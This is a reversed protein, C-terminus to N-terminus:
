QTLFQIIRKVQKEATKQNAIFAMAKKAKSDLEEQPKELVETIVSALNKTELGEVTYYYQYYEEPIGTLKYGIMPTGSSLYEMTKSPFSYKTLSVTPKRPNIVATAGQQLRIAEDRSVFGRFIIRSDSQSARQIYDRGEGSGCIILKFSKNNTLRFADVLDVVCAHADLSGTYLLTREKVERKPLFITNPNLAIGEVVISRGIAEPIREEMSKTLLIFKDIDSYCKKVKLYEKRIRVRAFVSRKYIPDMQDEVLDTVIAGVKIRGDMKKCSIISKLTNVQIDYVLVILNNEKQNIRAWNNIFKKLQIRGAIGTVFKLRLTKIMTGVKKGDFEMDMQPSFLKKFHFPFCCLSPQSVVAFDAKNVYLGEIVAWQFTNSSISMPINNNLSQLYSEAGKPYAVTVFLVKM